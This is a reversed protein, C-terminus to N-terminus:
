LGIQHRESCPEAFSTGAGGAAAIAAMHHRYIACHCACPEWIDIFAKTSNELLIELPNKEVYKGNRSAGAFCDIAISENKDPTSWLTGSFAMVGAEEPLFPKSRGIKNLAVM